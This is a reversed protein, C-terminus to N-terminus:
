DDDSIQRYAAPPDGQCRWCYDFSRDNIEGCRCHWDPEDAGSLAAALIECARAYDGEDIVWLEVWADFASLEGIVGGAYENKVLLDIGQAELLNRANGVLMRNDNTYVMKM